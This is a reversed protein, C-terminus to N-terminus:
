GHPTCAINQKKLMLCLDKVKASNRFGVAKLVFSPTGGIARVEPNINLVLGLSEINVAEKIRDMQGEALAQTPFTGLDAYFKPAVSLQARRAQYFAQNRKVLEPPLDMLGVRQADVDMGAMGYAEALNQRLAPTVGKDKLHPELVQIAENYSGSLVYSHALNNLTTLDSPNDSLIKKYTDQAAGHNGLFDLAIGLGNAAKVDDSNISLAKEFEDKAAAARGEKLALRGLARHAAGNSPDTDALIQYNEAAHLTDGHAEFIEALNHRAEIDDPRTQLARQYFSAATADDGQARLQNGLKTVNDSALNKPHDASCGVMALLLFGIFLQFLKIKHISKRM